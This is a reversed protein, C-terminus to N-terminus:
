EFIDVKDPEEQGETEVEHIRRSMDDDMTESIQSCRYGDNTSQERTETKDAHVGGGDNKGKNRSYQKGGDNIAM